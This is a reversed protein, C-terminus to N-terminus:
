SIPALRSKGCIFSCKKGEKEEFRFYCVCGCAKCSAVLLSSKFFLFSVNGTTRYKVHFSSNTESIKHIITAIYLRTCTNGGHRFKVWKSCNYSCLMLNFSYANLGVNLCMKWSQRKGPFSFLNLSTQPLTNEM